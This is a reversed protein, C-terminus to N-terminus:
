VLKVANRHQAGEHQSNLLSTSFSKFTEQLLADDKYVSLMVAHRMWHGERSRLRGWFGWTLFKSDPSLFGGKRIMMRAKVRKTDDDEDKSKVEVDSALLYDLDLHDATRRPGDMMTRAQVTKACACRWYQTEDNAEDQTAMRSAQTVAKVKQILEKTPYNAQSLMQIERATQISAANGRIQTHTLPTLVSLHGTKPSYRNGNEDRATTDDRVDVFITHAEKKRKEETSYISGYSPDM